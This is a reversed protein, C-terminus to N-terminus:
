HDSIYIYVFDFIQTSVSELIIMCINERMFGGDAGTALLKGDPSFRCVNVTASHRSLNSLFEVAAKGEADVRVRWM